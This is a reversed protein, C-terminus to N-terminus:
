SEGQSASAAGGSAPRSPQINSVQLYYDAFDAQVREGEGTFEGQEAWAGSVSDSMAEMTGTMTYSAGPQVQTAAAATSDLRVLIPVQSSQSGLEGWYINPGLSGTIQVAAVRITQGLYRAKNTRLSDKPVETFAVGGGEGAAASDAEVVPVSTPESTTGLWALFGGVVVLALIMWVWTLSGGPGKAKEAM